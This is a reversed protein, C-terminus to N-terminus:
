VIDPLEAACYFGGWRGLINFDRVTLKTTAPKNEAAANGEDPDARENYV